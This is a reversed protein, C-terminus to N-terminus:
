KTPLYDGSVMGQSAVSNSLLKQAVMFRSMEAVTGHFPGAAALSKRNADLAIIHVGAWMDEFEAVSVGSVKAMIAFAEARNKEVYDLADFWSKLLRRM